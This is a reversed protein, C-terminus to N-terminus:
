MSYLYLYLVLTHITMFPKSHFITCVCCSPQPCLPGSPALPGIALATYDNYSVSLSRHSKYRGNGYSCYIHGRKAASNYVYMTQKPFLHRFSNRQMLTHPKHTNLNGHINKVPSVTDEMHPLSHGRAVHLERCNLSVSPQGPSKSSYSWGALRRLHNDHNAAAFPM